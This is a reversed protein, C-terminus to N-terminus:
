TALMGSTAAAWSDYRPSCRWFFPSIFPRSGLFSPSGNSAKLLRPHYVFGQVSLFSSVLKARAGAVILPTAIPVHFWNGTGVKGQFTTGGSQRLGVVETWPIGPTPVMNGPNEAPMIAIGAMALSGDFWRGM